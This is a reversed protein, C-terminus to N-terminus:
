EHGDGLAVPGSSRFFHIWLFWAAGLMILLGGLWELPKPWSNLFILALPMAFLPETTRVMTTRSLAWYRLSVYVAIQGLCPGLFAGTLTVVWFRAPVAFCAKGSFLAYPVILVLGLGNRYVAMVSAPIESAIRKVILVQVAAVACALLTLTVGKWALDWEGLKSIFGGAIMVGAALIEMPTLREGLFVAGLIITLIPAFRYLFAFPMPELLALGSWSFIMVPGTALGMALVSPLVRRPVALLRAEGRIACIVLSYFAAAATWVLSFAEFGFGGDRSLGFKATIYNTSVLVTAALACLAGRLRGERGISPPAV